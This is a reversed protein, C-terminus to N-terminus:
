RTLRHKISSLIILLRLVSCNLELTISLTQQYSNRLVLDAVDETMKELLVNRKSRTLKEGRMAAALAIKINVEVDSSNVGASNDIADANCLGGHQNFEIRAPQTVGLNAGEGTIPDFDFDFDTDQASANIASFLLAACTSIICLHKLNRKM